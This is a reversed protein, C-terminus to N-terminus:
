TEETDIVLRTLDSTSTRTVQDDEWEVIALVHSGDEISGVVKGRAYRGIHTPAPPHQGPPEVGLITRDKMRVWDGSRIERM